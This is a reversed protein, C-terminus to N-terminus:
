DTHFSTGTLREAVSWLSAALDTGRAARPVSAVTTPGTLGLFGNPGYYVGNQAGRGVAAFLLPETGQEVAQNWPRPRDIGSGSVPKERGLSRGAQQLNTRTYGPHAITSMLPLGRETALRALHQGMLLDALKSQAYARASSWSQAWQLDHFRISGFSAALSSMTAVRPSDGRLLLPMLLNTLAFPGLFNTGFQLEFGDATLIRKPPFMVGANNVLVDVPTGDTLLADAFARVSALDALDLQRVAITASPSEALIASRADEGKEVSRVAM